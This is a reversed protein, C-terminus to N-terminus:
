LLISSNCPFLTCNVIFHQGQCHFTFGLHRLPLLHYLARRTVFGRPIGPGISSGFLFGPIQIEYHESLQAVRPPFNIRASGPAM